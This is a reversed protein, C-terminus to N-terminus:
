GYCAIEDSPCFSERRGCVLHVGVEDVAFLIHWLLLLRIGKDLTVCCGEYCKAEILVSSSARSVKISSAKAVGQVLAKRV